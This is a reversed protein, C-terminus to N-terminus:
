ELKANGTVTAESDPGMLRSGQTSVVARGTQPDIVRSATQSSRRNIANAADTKASQMLRTLRAENKGRIDTGGLSGIMQTLLEQTGKDMAGFKSMQNKIGLLDTGISKLEAEEESSRSAYGKRTLELARQVREEVKDANEQIGVIEERDKPSNALVGQISGNSGRGIAVFNAQPGKESMEGSAKMREIDIKEQDQGFKALEMADKRAQRAQAAAASAMAADTQMKAISVQEQAKNAAEMLRVKQSKSQAQDGQLKLTNATKQMLGQLMVSRAVKGDQYRERLDQYLTRRANLVDKGRQIDREQAAIDRDVEKEIQDFYVNRGGHEQSSWGGLFSAFAGALRTGADRDQLYRNPDVKSNAIRDIDEQGKVTLEDGRRKYEADYEAIDRNYADLAQAMDQDAAITGDLRQQEIDSQQKGLRLTEDQTRQFTKGANNRILKPDANPDQELQESPLLAPAVPAAPAPVARPRAIPAPAPSPASTMIQPAPAIPVPAVPPVNLAMPAPAPAPQQFVPPLPINARAPMTDAPLGVGMQDLWANGTGAM